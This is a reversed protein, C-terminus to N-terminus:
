YIKLRKIKKGEVTDRFLKHDREISKAMFYKEM